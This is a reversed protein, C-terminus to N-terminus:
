MPILPSGVLSLMAPFWHWSFANGTWKSTAVPSSVVMTKMFRIVVISSTPWQYLSPSINSKKTLPLSTSPHQGIMCCPVMWSFRCGRSSVGASVSSSLVVDCSPLSPDLGPQVESTDMSAQGRSWQFAPVVNQPPKVGPGSSRLPAHYPAQHLDWRRRSLRRRSSTSAQGRQCELNTQGTNSKKAQRCCSPM